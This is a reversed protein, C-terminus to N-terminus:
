RIGCAEGANMFRPMNPLSMDLTPLGIIGSDIPTMGAKAYMNIMNRKIENKNMLGALESEIVVVVVADADAICHSDDRGAYRPEISEKSDIINSPRISSKNSIRQLCLNKRGAMAEM